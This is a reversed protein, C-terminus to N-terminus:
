RMKKYNEVCIAGGFLVMVIGTLGVAWEALCILMAFLVKSFNDLISVFNYGTFIRFDNLVQSLIVVVVGIIVVVIGVGINVMRRKKTMTKAM